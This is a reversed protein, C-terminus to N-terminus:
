ARPRPCRARGQPRCGPSAEQGGSAGRGTARQRGGTRTRTSRQTEGQSTDSSGGGRQARRPSYPGHRPPRAAARGWLRRRTPTGGYLRRARWGLCRTAAFLRPRSVARSRARRRPTPATPRPTSPSHRRCPFTPSSASSPRCTRCATQRPSVRRGTGTSWPDAGTRCRRTTAAWTDVAAGRRPPGAVRPRPRPPPRRTAAAAAGTSTAAARRTRVSARHAVVAACSLPVSSPKAGAGARM